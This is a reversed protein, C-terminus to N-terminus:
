GGVWSAITAYIFRYNYPNRLRSICTDDQHHSSHQTRPLDLMNRGIHHTTQSKRNPYPILFWKLCIWVLYNILLVEWHQVWVIKLDMQVFCNSRGVLMRGGRKKWVVLSVNPGKTRRRNNSPGNREKTRYRWAKYVGYRDTLDDFINFIEEIIAVVKVFCSSNITQVKKPCHYQQHFFDRM